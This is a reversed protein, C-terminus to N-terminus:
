LLFSEGCLLFNYGGREGYCFIVITVKNRNILRVSRTKLGLMSNSGRLKFAMTGFDTSGKVIADDFAKKRARAITESREITRAM